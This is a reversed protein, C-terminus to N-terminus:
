QLTGCLFHLHDAVTDKTHIVVLFSLQGDVIVGRRGMKDQFLLVPQWSPTNSIHALLNTTLKGPGAHQYKNPPM